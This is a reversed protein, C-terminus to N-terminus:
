SGFNSGRLIRTKHTMLYYNYRDSIHNHYNLIYSFNWQSPGM